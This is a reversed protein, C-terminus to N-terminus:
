MTTIFCLSIKEAFPATATTVYPTLMMPWMMVMSFILLFLNGYKTQSM